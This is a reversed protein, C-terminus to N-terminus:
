KVVKLSFDQIVPNALLRKGADDMIQLAEKESAATVTVEYVQVTSVKIAAYGLLKLSKAVTEGEADVVGKKYSIRVEVRVDM